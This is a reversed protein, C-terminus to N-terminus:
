LLDGMVHFLFADTAHSYWQILQDCANDLKFRFEASGGGRKDVVVV